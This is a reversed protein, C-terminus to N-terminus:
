GQQEILERLAQPSTDGLDDLASVLSQAAIEAVPPTSADIRANPPISKSASVLFCTSAGSEDVATVAPPWDEAHDAETRFGVPMPLGLSPDRGGSPYAACAREVREWTPDGAALRLAERVSSAVEVARSVEALTAAVDASPPAGTTAPVPPTGNAAPETADDEGGCAALALALAFLASLLARQITVGRM